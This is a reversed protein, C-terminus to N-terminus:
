INVGAGPCHTSGNVNVTVTFGITVGVKLKPVKWDIQVPAATGGNGLVDVFPILPVHLGATTSLIDLPVYVNVGDAPCHATPVLKVRSTFVIGDIATLVSVVTYSPAITGANVKIALGAPVTLQVLEFVLMPTASDPVPVTGEKVAIFM